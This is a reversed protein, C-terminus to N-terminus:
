RLTSTTLLTNIVVLFRWRRVKLGGPKSVSQNQRLVAPQQRVRLRAGCRLPLRTFAVAHWTGALAFADYLRRRVKPCIKLSEAARKRSGAPRVTVFHEYRSLTFGGGDRGCRELPIASCPM